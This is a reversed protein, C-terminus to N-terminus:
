TLNIRIVKYIEDGKVPSLFRKEPNDKDGLIVAKDNNDAVEGIVAAPIGCAVIENIKEYFSKEDKKDDGIVAVVSGTGELMYPNIDFFESIEVTEQKIPIEAHNIKIGHKIRVGLQWLAGYIGGHSVDHMYLVDKGYTDILKRVKGEIAYDEKNFYAGEIYSYAFRKGLEEHKKRAIIDTGMLGALGLMIIKDNAKISKIDQKYSFERLVTNDKDKIYADVKGYATVVFGAKNFHMGIETHGGLIQVAENDALLNFEKMYLKIDAETVDEPLLMVIRVGIPMAGSVALNNMAKVWAIYPIESVGECSAWDGVLSFDNGIGAGQIMDKNHKRIHKTVSRTNVLENLTGLEM